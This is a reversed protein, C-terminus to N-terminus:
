KSPTDDEPAFDDRNKPVPYPLGAATLLDKEAKRQAIVEELDYGREGLKAEQTALGNEIELIDAQAAKLPDAVPKGEGRWVANSYADMLATDDRAVSTQQASQREADSSDFVRFISHEMICGLFHLRSCIAVLRVDMLDRVGSPRM